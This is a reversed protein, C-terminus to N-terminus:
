INLFTGVQVGEVRLHSEEEHEELLGRIASTQFDPLPMVKENQM